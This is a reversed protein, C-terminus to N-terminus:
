LAQLRGHRSDNGLDVASDGDTLPGETVFSGRVRKGVGGLDLPDLLDLCPEIM